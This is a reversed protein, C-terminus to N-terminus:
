IESQIERIRRIGEESKIKGTDIDELISAIMAEDADKLNQIAAILDDVKRRLTPYSVGVQVALDKLNGGCLIMQEALLRFEQPLRALRPM